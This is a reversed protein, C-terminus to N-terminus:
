RVERQRKQTRLIPLAELTTALLWSRPVVFRALPPALTVTVIRGQLKPFLHRIERRSVKRVSTNSPNNYAFDYWVLAGGPALVRMIEQAIRKRM